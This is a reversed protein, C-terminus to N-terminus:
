EREHEEYLAKLLDQVQKPSLGLQHAQSVVQRLSQKIVAKREEFAVDSQPSLLRVGQGRVNEIVGDRELLSYAKSITMPNVALEKALTRVSPLFDGPRIRGASALQCVQDMIQRYIPVGSSVSVHFTISPGSMHILTTICQHPRTLLFIFGFAPSDEYVLLMQHAGVREPQRSIPNDPPTSIAFAM